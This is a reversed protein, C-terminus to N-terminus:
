YFSDPVSDPPFLLFSDTPSAIIPFGLITNKSSGDVPISGFARLNMHFNIDFIAVYRFCDVIIKVVWEIYYASAKDVLSAIITFPM